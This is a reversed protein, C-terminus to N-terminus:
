GEQLRPKNKLYETTKLVKRKQKQKEKKNKKNIEHCLESQYHQFQLNKCMKKYGELISPM